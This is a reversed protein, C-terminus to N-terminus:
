FILADLYLDEFSELLNLEIVRVKQALKELKPLLEPELLVRSAGGLSANGVVKVKSAEMKPLIGLHMAHSLNMHYGFGGAVMLRDLDGVALGAEGLIAEAGAQIAAKAKLLEALDVETIFLGSTLDHRWVEGFPGKAKRLGKAGTDYRGREGVWGEKHALATYDIYASGAFGQYDQIDAQDGRFVWEGHIRELHHVAFADAPRGCALMGGEFAPGVATATALWENGNKLLIEGNTGFDILLVKEGGGEMMGSALAGATIDAGVFAGMGPLLEIELLPDLGLVGASISKSGLFEPQFPFSAFGKLPLGCLTHLMVPNGAVVVRKLQRSMEPISAKLKTVLPQLTEQVLAQHLEQGGGELDHHVRSIVNDGYKRQENGSSVTELLIGKELDWLAVVVTTTGIDIALGYGVQGSKPTWDMTFSDLAHLVKKGSNKGMLAVEDGPALDGTPLQCSRREQGNVLVRCGQCLGRCGCRTDLEVGRGELWELLSKSSDDPEFRLSTM